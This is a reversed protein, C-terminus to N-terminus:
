LFLTPPYTSFEESHFCTRIASRHLSVLLIQLKM